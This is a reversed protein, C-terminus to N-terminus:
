LEPPLANPVIMKNKINKIASQLIPAINPRAATLTSAYSMKTSAVLNDSVMYTNNDPLSFQQEIAQLLEKINTQEDNAYPDIIYKDIYADLVMEFIELAKDDAPTAVNWNKGATHRFNTPIVGTAAVFLADWQPFKYAERHNSFDPDVKIDDLLFRVTKPHKHIIAQTLGEKLLWSSKNEFIDPQRKFLEKLFSIDGQAAAPKLALKGSNDDPIIEKAARGKTAYANLKKEFEADDKAADNDTASPSNQQVSPRKNDEIDMNANGFLTFLGSIRGFRMVTDKM